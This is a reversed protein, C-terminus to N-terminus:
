PARVQLRDLAHMLTNVEVGSAHRGVWVFIYLHRRRDRFPLEGWRHGELSCM